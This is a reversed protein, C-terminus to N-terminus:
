IAILNKIKLILQVVDVKGDVSRQLLLVLQVVLPDNQDSV